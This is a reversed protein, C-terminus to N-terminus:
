LKSCNRLFKKLLDLNYFMYHCALNDESTQAKRGRVFATYEIEKEMVQWLLSGEFARADEALQMLEEQSLKRKNLFYGKSTMQLIDDETIAVLLEKTLHQLIKRKIKRIIKGM